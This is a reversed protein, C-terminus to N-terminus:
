GNGPFIMKKFYTEIHASGRSGSGFGGAPTPAIEGASTHELEFKMQWPNKTKDIEYIGEYKATDNWTISVSKINGFNSESTSYIAGIIGGVVSSNGYDFRRFDHDYNYTTDVGEFIMIRQDIYSPLDAALNTGESTWSGIIDEIEQFNFIMDEKLSLVYFYNQDFTNAQQSTLSVRYNKYIELGDFKYKGQADTQTFTSDNNQKLLVQVNPYPSGDIKSVKGSISFKIFNVAIFNISQDGSNDSLTYTTINYYIDSTPGSPTLTYTGSKDLNEFKYIGSADTTASDKESGTLTVKAGSIPNGNTDVIKGSIIFTTSNNNGNDVPNNNKSSCSILSFSFLLLVFYFASKRM